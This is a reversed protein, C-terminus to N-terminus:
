RNRGRPTKQGNARISEKAAALMEDVTKGRQRGVILSDIALRDYRPSRPGFHYVPAPLKGAAVLTRLRGRPCSVYAAAGAPNLWRSDSM